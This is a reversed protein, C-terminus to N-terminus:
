YQCVAIWLVLRKGGTPPRDLALTHIIFPEVTEEREEREERGEKEEKAERQKKEIVKTAIESLVNGVATVGFLIYFIGFIKGLNTNKPSIDGYGITTSTIVAFYLCKNM